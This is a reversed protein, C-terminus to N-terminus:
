GRYRMLVARVVNDWVQSEPEDGNRKKKFLDVMDELLYFDSSDNVAEDASFGYTDIFLQNAVDSDLEEDSGDEADFNVGVHRLFHEKAVELLDSHEKELYGRALEIANTHITIERLVGTCVTGKGDYVFFSPSDEGGDHVLSYRIGEDDVLEADGNQDYEIVHNKGFVCEVLRKFESHLAEFAEELTEYPLEHISPYENTGSELLLYRKVLM